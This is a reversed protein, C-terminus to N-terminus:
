RVGASVALKDFTKLTDSIKFMDKSSLGDHLPLSLCRRYADYAEPFEAKSFGYRLRYYHTLPVCYTGITAEIGHAVLHVILADRNIRDDVKILFTQINSEGSSDGEVIELWDIEQLISRFTKALHKRKELYADFRGLQSIGLAAQFDTMRYNFGPRRYDDADFGHNRLSRLIDATIPDHTVIVGGEGTTLLKRPHFSFAALDGFAGCSIGNYKSGLACAADEIVVLDYKRAIDRISDMDAPIGFAHVPIIAKTRPGIQDVLRDPDINVSGPRCDIFIPIAGAIEVVNATARFTFAPVLVEDTPRIDAALLALHLAATGSSVCVANAVGIYEALLREFRQVIPGSVLMGTELVRGVAEIEAPSINPKILRVISSNEM